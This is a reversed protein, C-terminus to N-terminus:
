PQLNYHRRLPTTFSNDYTCGCVTPIYYVVLAELTALFPGSFRLGHRNRITDFVGTFAASASLAPRM